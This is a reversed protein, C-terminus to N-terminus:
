DLNGLHEFILTRCIKMNQEKRCVLLTQKLFSSLNVCLKCLAWTYICIRQVAFFLLYQDSIIKEADSTQKVPSYLSVVQQLIINFCLNEKPSWTSFLSNKQHIKLKISILFFYSISMLFTFIWSSFSGMSRKTYIFLPNSLIHVRMRTM